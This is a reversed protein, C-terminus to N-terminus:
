HKIQDHVKKLIHLIYAETYFRMQHRTNLAYRCITERSAQVITPGGPFDRKKTNCRRKELLEFLTEQLTMSSRNVTSNYVIFNYTYKYNIQPYSLSFQLRRGVQSKCNTALM